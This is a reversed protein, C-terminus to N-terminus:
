KTTVINWLKFNHEFLLASNSGVGHSHFGDGSGDFNFKKTGWEPNTKKIITSATKCNEKTLTKM